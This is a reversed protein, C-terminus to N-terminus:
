RAFGSSLLVHAIRPTKPNECWDEFFIVDSLTVVPLCPLQTVKHAVSAKRGTADVIWRTRFKEVVGRTNMEAEVEWGFTIPRDNSADPPGETTEGAFRKVSKFKSKQLVAGCALRLTEDFHVRDLHWGAGYPNMIAHTEHLASSAWVSANGTCVDHLGNSTDRLLRPVLSPDLTPLTRKAAAPLSEGIQFM